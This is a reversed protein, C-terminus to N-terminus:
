LSIFKIRSDKKRLAHLKELSYGPSGNEVIIFEFEEGAEQCAARVRDCLEELTVAENYAPAVISIM